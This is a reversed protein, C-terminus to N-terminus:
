DETDDEGGIIKKIDVMVCRDNLGDEINNIKCDYNCPCESCHEQIQKRLNEIKHRMECYEATLRISKKALEAIESMSLKEFYPDSFPKYVEVMGAAASKAASLRMYVETLEKDKERAEQQLNRNQQVVENYQQVAAQLQQKLKLEKATKYGEKGCDVLVTGCKECKFNSM